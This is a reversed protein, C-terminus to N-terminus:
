SLFQALNIRLRRLQQRAMPFHGPMPLCNLRQPILEPVPSPYYQSGPSSQDGTGAIFKVIQAHSLSISNPHECILQDVFAPIDSNHIRLPTQANLLELNSVLFFTITLLGTLTKNQTM